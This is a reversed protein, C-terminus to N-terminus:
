PALRRALDAHGREGALDAATKGDALKIAKDAGAALLADVCTEYGNGAAIMLATYGQKQLADVGTAAILREFAPKGIRRGACAAHLALNQEFARGMIRGSAGAELLLIVVDDNGVFAALHLATWGDPSLLDVAWPAQKLLADLRSVDGALAAEHLSLGGRAKLMAACKVRGRFTCFLFLSEGNDNRIRSADSRDGLVAALGEADDAEALKFFTTTEPM